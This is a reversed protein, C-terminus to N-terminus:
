CTCTLSLVAFAQMIGEHVGETYRGESGEHLEEADM